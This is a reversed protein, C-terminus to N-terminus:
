MKHYKTWGHIRCTIVATGSFIYSNIMEVLYLKSVDRLEKKDNVKEDKKVKEAKNLNIAEKKRALM